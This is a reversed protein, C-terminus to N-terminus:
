GSSYLVSIESSGASTGATDRSIVRWSGNIALLKM